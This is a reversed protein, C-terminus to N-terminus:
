SSTSGHSPIGKMQLTMQLEQSNAKEAVDNGGGFYAGDIFVYPVSPNGTIQELYLQIAEGDLREDLEVTRLNDSDVV